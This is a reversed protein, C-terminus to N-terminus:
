DAAKRYWLVASVVNAECGLGKALCLGYVVAIFPMEPANSEFWTMLPSALTSAIDLDKTFCLTSEMTHLFIQAAIAASSGKKTIEQLRPWSTEDKRLAIADILVEIQAVETCAHILIVDYITFM